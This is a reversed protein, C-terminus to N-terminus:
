GALCMKTRQINRSTMSWSPVWPAGITHLPSPEIVNRVLQHLPPTWTVKSLGIREGVPIGSRLRSRRETSMLAEPLSNLVSLLSPSSTSNTALSDLSCIPSESVPTVLSSSQPPKSPLPLDSVPNLLAIHLYCDFYLTPSYCTARPHPHPHPHPHTCRSHTHQYTASVLSLCLCSAPDLSPLVCPPATWHSLSCDLAVM